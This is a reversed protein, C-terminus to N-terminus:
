SGRAEHQSQFLFIGTFPVTVENNDGRELMCNWLFPPVRWIWHCLDGSYQGISKHSMNGHYFFFNPLCVWISLGSYLQDLILPIAKNDILICSKSASKVWSRSSPFGSFLRVVLCFLLYDKNGYSVGFLLLELKLLFKYVRYGWRKFLHDMLETKLIM